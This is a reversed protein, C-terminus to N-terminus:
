GNEGHEFRAKRAAAYANFVNPFYSKSAVTKTDICWGEPESDLGYVPEVDLLRALSKNGGDIIEFPKWRSSTFFGWSKILGKYHQIIPHLHLHTKSAEPIDSLLILGATEAGYYCGNFNPLVGGFDHLEIQKEYDRVLSQKDGKVEVFLGGQKGSPPPLYFDPLYRCTSVGNWGEGEYGQDEYKWEIGATEFFVAWRAELRSRFRYGKYETEIAQITM